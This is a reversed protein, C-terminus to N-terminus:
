KQSIAEVPRAKWDKDVWLGVAECQFGWSRVTRVSQVIQGLQAEEGVPNGACDHHGVVAVHRSGHKGASTEMRRKISDLTAVDKGESLVKVPGPETIVDACDVSWREKLYHIVPMRVRGDMCNIATVFAARNM